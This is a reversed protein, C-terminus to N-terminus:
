REEPDDPRQRAPATAQLSSRGARGGNEVGPAVSAVGTVRHLAVTRVTGRAVDVASLRGGEVSLPELLRREVTGLPDSIGVWVQGQREAAARLLTMSSVPGLAPVSPPPSPVPRPAGARSGEPARDASRLARVLAGATAADVPPAPGVPGSSAPAARHPAPVRHTRRRQVVVAGDDGEAAPALGIRRLTALVTTPDAQAALVTPALRRLGLGATRRDAVLEVLVAEDDARVFASATGVRVRGHRRATDRVLYEVPQPVPTRSHRTLFGLLEDATRGADLARRVSDPGFRYVTAGGRSDVDAMGSLEREVERTLPGPAVATLDAQLLVHEIPAPLARDLADAATGPADDLARAATSLAGLGLLGLWTAEEVVVPLSAGATTVPGRPRRWALHARLDEVAVATGHPVAALAVLVEARLLSEAPRLVAESLPARVTGRDGRTGVTSVSAPMRTWGRALHEWRTGASQEAWRDFAATPAWRPDTGGDQGVLGCAGALVVVRAADVEDVGLALAVRRLDRVGVGGGRLVPVVEVEWLTALEGVLRVAEAGAGAAGADVGAPDRATGLLEPAPPTLDVGDRHVRGGRLGLGVERPLVVRDDDLQVLLVHALLWGVATTAEGARVDQETMRLTGVPGARDLRETLQRAAEPASGLLRELTAPDGVAGAVLELDGHPDGTPALGLDIVAGALRTPSRRVATDALWPGLGAPHPGLLDSMARVPLVSRGDGWALALGRLTDLLPALRATSTGAARALTAPRVPGRLAVLAEAVQLAPRDLLALARHVSVRTSARSALATLDAPAPNVLDPRSRLLHVLAEDDRGRLDDTLSRPAPPPM